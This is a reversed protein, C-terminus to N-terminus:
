LPEADINDDKDDDDDNNDDDNFDDKGSDVDEKGAGDEDSTTQKENYLDDDKGIVILLLITRIQVAPATSEYDYCFVNYLLSFCGLCWHAQKQRALVELRSSPSGTWLGSILMLTWSLVEETYIMMTQENSGFQM